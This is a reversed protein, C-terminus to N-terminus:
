DCIIPCPTGMSTQDKHETEHNMPQTPQTPQTLKSISQHHSGTAGIYASTWTLLRMQINVYFIRYIFAMIMLIVMIQLPCLGGSCIHLHAPAFLVAEVPQEEIIHNPLSKWDRIPQPLFSHKYKNPKQVLKSLKRLISNDPM